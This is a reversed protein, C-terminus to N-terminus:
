KTGERGLEKDTNEWERKRILNSMDSISKKYGGLPSWDFELWKGCPCYNRTTNEDIMREDFYHHDQRIWCLIRYLIM